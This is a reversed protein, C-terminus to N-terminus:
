SRRKKLAYAGGLATLVLLGSDLPAGPIDGTINHGGPVVPNMPEEPKDLGNGGYEMNVFFNDNKPGQANAMGALALLIVITHLTKRM